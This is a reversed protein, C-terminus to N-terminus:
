SDTPSPESTAAASTEPAAQDEPIGAPPKKTQIFQMRRIPFNVSTRAEQRGEKLRLFWILVQCPVALCDNIGDVWEDFTVGGLEGELLLEEGVTTEDPQWTYTEDPQGPQGPITVTWEGYLKV